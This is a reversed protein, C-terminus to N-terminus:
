VAKTQRFVYESRRNASALGVIDLWTKYKVEVYMQRYLNDQHMRDGLNTMFCAYLENHFKTFLYIKDEIFDLNVLKGPYRVLNEAFDMYQPYGNVFAMQSNRMEQDLTAVDKYYGLGVLLEIKKQM